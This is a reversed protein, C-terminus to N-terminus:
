CIIAWRHYCDDGVVVKMMVVMMIDEDGGDDAGDDDHDLNNHRGTWGVSVTINLKGKILTRTYFCREVGDGKELKEALEIYIPHNQM